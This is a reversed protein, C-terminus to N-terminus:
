PRDHLFWADSGPLALALESRSLQLSGGVALLQGAVTWADRPDQPPRDVVLQLMTGWSAVLEAGWREQWERQAGALAGVREHDYAGHFSIWAPALWGHPTPLLVLSFERVPHWTRTGQLPALDVQARLAPDSVLRDYLWADFRPYTTPWALADAVRDRLGPADPFRHALEREADDQEWPLEDEWAALVPWPDAESAVSFRHLLEPSPDELWPAGGHGSTAVPWRGTHPVLDRAAQWLVRLRDGPLGDLRLVGGAAPVVEHGRLPGQALLRACAADDVPV